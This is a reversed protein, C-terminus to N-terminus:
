DKRGIAELIAMDLAAQPVFYAAERAGHEKLWEPRRADRGVIGGRIKYRGNLGTLLVFMEDEADGERVILEYEHKSRTRVQVGGVDPASFSNVSICDYIGLAKALAREGCAGEIHVQWGKDVECGHQDLRGNKLSTIQRVMGVYAAISLELPSLMIETQIQALADAWAFRAM